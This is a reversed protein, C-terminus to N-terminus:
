PMAVLNNDVNVSYQKMFKIKNWLHLEYNKQKTM